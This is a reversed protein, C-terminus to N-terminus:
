GANVDDVYPYSLEFKMPGADTITERSFCGHILDGSVVADDAVGAAVTLFQAKGTANSAAGKATALGYIQYWGFKTAGVAATAVAVRGVADAVARATKHADTFTVFDTAATSAVGELYIYENGDNDFRRTGLKNLASDHVDGPGGISVSPGVLQGM